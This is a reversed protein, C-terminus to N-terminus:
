REYGDEKGLGLIKKLMDVVNDKAPTNEEQKPCLERRLHKELMDVTVESKLMGGVAVSIHGKEESVIVVVADSVESIGLGARHRTGLNPNLNSRDSLPLVCGASAIRGNQIVVAGDHLPSNKFFINQLLQASVVSDITTGSQVNENLNDTRAFVILAGTKERSMEKCANVTQFIVREMEQVPKRSDFLGTFKVDILKDLIARLEPRFLVVFAVLGIALFESLIWNLTYLKMVDTIWTLVVVAAVARVIKMVRPTKILPLMKYVLLAVLIVDLYDSWQMKSITQIYNQIVEM